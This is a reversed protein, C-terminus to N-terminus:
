DSEQAGQSPSGAWRTAEGKWGECVRLSQQRDPGYLVSLLWSPLSTPLPHFLAATTLPHQRSCVAARGGSRPPDVKRLSLVKQSETEEHVCCSPSFGAAGLAATVGPDSRAKGSM